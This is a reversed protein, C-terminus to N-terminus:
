TRIVAKQRKLFRYVYFVASVPLVSCLAVVVVDALGILIMIFTEHVYDVWTGSELQFIAMPFPFGAFRLTPSVNYDLMFGAWVGTVIGAVLISSLVIWWTSSVKERRFSRVTVFVIWGSVCTLAIFLLIAM